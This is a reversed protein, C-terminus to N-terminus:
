LGRVFSLMADKPICGKHKEEKTRLDALNKPIQTGTCANLQEMQDFEDAAPTVGLADLVAAPFKYASATSLVVMPTNDGTQNVYDEAVAWGTATHPDCLYHHKSWVSGIAAQAGADDCCGAWFVSQIENLLKEPVTYSGERNLQEMLSSVLETDCGSMLYLLRELNSSVLIDMSPSMTKHLNRRRDYTGTRIFDTLM